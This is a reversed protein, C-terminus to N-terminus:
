ILLRQSRLYFRPPPPPAARPLALNPRHAAVTLGLPSYEEVTVWQLPFRDSALVEHEGVLAPEAGVAHECPSHPAHDSGESHADASLYAHLAASDSQAVEVPRDGGIAAAISECCPFIAANLWFVAWALVLGV